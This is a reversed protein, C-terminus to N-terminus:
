LTVERRLAVTWRDGIKSRGAIRSSVKRQVQVGLPKDGDYLEVTAVRHGTAPDPDDIAVTLGTLTVEHTIPNPRRTM